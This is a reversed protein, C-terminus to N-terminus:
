FDDWLCDLCQNMFMGSRINKHPCHKSEEILTDWAKRRKAKLEKEQAEIKEIIKRYKKYPTM